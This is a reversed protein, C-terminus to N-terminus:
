ASYLEATALAEENSKEGGAILVRGDALLTASHGNRPGPSSVARVFKAAPPSWVCVNFDSV